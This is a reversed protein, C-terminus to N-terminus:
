DFQHRLEGDRHYVSPGDYSVYQKTGDGVSEKEGFEFENSEEIAARIARSTGHVRYKTHKLNLAKDTDLELTVDAEQEMLTRFVVFEQHRTGKMVELTLGDEFDKLRFNDRTM